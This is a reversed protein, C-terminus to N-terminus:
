EKKRNKLIFIGMGAIMVLVPLLFVHHKIHLGALGLYYSAIGNVGGALAIGVILREIFDLKEKWYLMLSYGPVVFLWFLALTMKVAVILNENFFVIKFIMLMLLYLIGIYALEKKLLDFIKKSM